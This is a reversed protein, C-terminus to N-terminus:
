TSIFGGAPISGAVQQNRLLHRQELGEIPEMSNAQSEVVQPIQEREFLFRLYGLPIPNQCLKPVTRRARSSTM